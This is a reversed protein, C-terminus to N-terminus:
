TRPPTPMPKSELVKAAHGGVMDPPRCGFFAAVSLNVFKYHRESNCQAILVPAHDAVFQSQQKSEVLAQEAQKRETIAESFLIVGDIDDAELTIPLPDHELVEHARLEDRALDLYGGTSSARSCRRRLSNHVRSNM